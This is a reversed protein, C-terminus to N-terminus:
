ENLNPESQLKDSAGPKPGLAGAAFAAASAELQAQQEDAKRKAEEDPDYGLKQLATWKSLGLRVHSELTTAEVLDDRSEPSDWIPDIIALPEVTPAGEAGYAHAVRLVVSASRRWPGGHTTQRDEAKHVLGAESNKRAEGSPQDGEILMEHLPTKTIAAIRSLQSKLVAQMQTPDDAQFEGFKADQNATRIMEGAAVKLSTTESVGAAWRQKWAQTDNIEFADLSTKNFGDQLPIVVRLESKGNRRGKPKNRFHVGAIGIPEGEPTGDMTWPMPWVPELALIPVLDGTDPDEMTLPDGTEEDFQERDEYDDDDLWRAWVANDESGDGEPTFWKEIRDPFYRNMRIVLDGDPNVPGPTSTPWKKVLYLMGEGDDGYVAKCLRPHNWCATPIGKEDDWDIILFGDGLKSTETHVVGQTEDMEDLKWWRDRLWESAPENDTVEWGVVKLREALADVVTECINECWRFGARELYVKARDLLQTRQEGDYYDEFLRYDALRTDGLDADQRLQDQTAADIDDLPTAPQSPRRRNLIDRLAM